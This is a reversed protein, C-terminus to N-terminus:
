ADLAVVEGRCRGDADRTMMLASYESLEVWTAVDRTLAPDNQHYLWDGPALAFPELSAALAAVEDAGFGALATLGQLAGAGDAAM